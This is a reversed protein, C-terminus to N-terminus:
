CFSLYFLFYFYIGKSDKISIDAKSDLLFRVISVHNSLAALLLPTEGRSSQANVHSGRKVLLSVCEMFGRSAAIHLPLYGEKDPVDIPIKKHPLMKKIIKHRNYFAAMHMCTWGNVNQININGNFNALLIFFLNKELISAQHLATNGFQDKLNVNAGSEIL